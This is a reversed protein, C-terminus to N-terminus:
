EHRLAAVPRARSVRVSHASVTLLAILLATLAAAPFLWLPLAIRYAFGDLWQQMTWGALPWAILNALAVPRSFQWLLLRLVNSTNAGLAKRIGIEKRRQEVVSAALGLLGLCALLAALLSFLGFAQAQRLMSLYRARVNDDVFFRSPEGEGGTRRWIADIQALTEPLQRGVVRLHVAGYDAPAHIYATPAIRQTVPVLSFDHVVGGIERAEYSTGRAGVRTGGPQGIAADMSAYGLERLASENILIRGDPDGQGFREGGALPTIGYLTLTAGDLPVVNLDNPEGDAGRFGSYTSSVFNLFERGTCSVGAVGPLARLGDILAPRCPAILALMQDTDLRLAEGTAFNRQMSIVGSCVILAVLLAFQLTVLANRLGTSLRSHRLRGAIAELPRVGALVLASGGGALLGLVIVGALLAGCLWPDHWYELRAGADLFANVNPLSWEALVVALLVAVLVYGLSEGLFQWVIAGRTAGAIRRIGVETARVGARAGLLNTFNIAAILLTVMGLTGLMVLKQTVGPNLRPHTNIRDLRVLELSRSGLQSMWFGDLYADVREQLARVDTGPALRFFTRASISFYNSGLENKPDADQQALPSFAALASAFVGAQFHTENAPLNAIVARLVMPEGNVLLTLGITWRDGFYRRATSATMVLSDPVHLAAVPDGALVPMPLVMFTDPDAWYLVQDAETAGQRIRASMRQLRAVASIESFQQLLRPGVRSQTEAYTAGARGVPNTRTAALYVQQYGTVLHDFSFQNRIVLGAVLSAWLGVALGLVSIAAYLRNRALHRLAAALINRLM